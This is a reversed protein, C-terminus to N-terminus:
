FSLFFFFFFFFFNMQIKCLVYSKFLEMLSIDNMKLYVTSNREREEGEGEEGALM